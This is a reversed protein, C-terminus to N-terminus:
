RAYVTITSVSTIGSGNKDVASIAISASTATIDASGNNEANKYYGQRYHKTTESLEEKPINVTLLINHFNDEVEIYVEHFSEPLAIATTGTEAKVLSWPMEVDAAMSALGNALAQKISRANEQCMGINEALALISSKFSM